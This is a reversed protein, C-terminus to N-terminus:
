PQGSRPPESREDAMPRYRRLSSARPMAIPWNCLRRSGQVRDLLVFTWGHQEAVRATLRAVLSKGTGYPGELLVGRRLPIGHQPM